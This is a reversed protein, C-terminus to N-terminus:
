NHTPSSQVRDCTILVFIKLESFFFTCINPDSSRIKNLEDGEAMSTQLIRKKMLAANPQRSKTKEFQVHDIEFVHGKTFFIIKLLM